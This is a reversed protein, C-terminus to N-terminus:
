RSPLRIPSIIKEARYREEFTAARLVGSKDKVAVWRTEGTVGACAHNTYFKKYWFKRIHDLQSNKKCKDKEPM